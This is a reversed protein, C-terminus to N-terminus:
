RSFGYHVVLRIQGLGSALTEEDLEGMELVLGHNSGPSDHWGQVVGTVEFRLFGGNKAYDAPDIEWTASVTESVSVSTESASSGSWSETAAYAAYETFEESPVGSPTWEVMAMDVRRGAGAQMGSLDFQVAVKTLGSEDGALVVAQSPAVTLVDGAAVGPVVLAVVMLVWLTTKMNTEGRM